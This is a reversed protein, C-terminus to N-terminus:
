TMEGERGMVEWRVGVNGAAANGPRLKDLGITPHLLPIQRGVASAARRATCRAAWPGHARGHIQQCTRNLRCRSLLDSSCLRFQSCVGLHVKTRYLLFITM